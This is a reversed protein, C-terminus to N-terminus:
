QCKYLFTDHLARHGWYSLTESCMWSVACQFIITSKDPMRAPDAKTLLPDGWAWQWNLGSFGSGRSWDWQSVLAFVVLQLLSVIVAFATVYLVSRRHLDARLERVSADPSAWPWPDQPHLKAMHLRQRVVKPTWPADHLYYLLSFFAIGLVELSRHVVFVGFVSCCAVSGAFVHTIIWQMCARHDVGPLTFYLFAIVLSAVDMRTLGWRSRGTRESVASPFGVTHLPM